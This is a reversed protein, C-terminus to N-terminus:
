NRSLSEPPGRHGDHQGGLSQDLREGPYAGQVLRRQCQGSAAHVRQEALVAGALAGQDLDQGPHVSRVAPLQPQGSGVALQARHLQAVRLVGLPGADTDHVLLPVQDRREADGLVDAQLVQGAAGAQEVTRRQTGLGATAEVQEVEVQVGVQRHRPQRHGLQLQHLDGLRQRRFRCHQQEVFRGRRQGVVLGVPEVADNTPQGLPAVGCHQDAVFQLLDERDGVRHCHQAVPAADGLRFGEGVVAALLDDVQHDAPRVLLHVEGGPGDRRIDFRRQGEIGDGGGGAVVVDAEGDAGTLDDAQVSQDARAAALQGLRQEAEVLDGGPLHPYVATRGPDPVHAIGQVPVPDAVDGLVALLLAEEEVLGHGAVRGHRHPAPQGPEPQDPVPRLPGQDVLVGIPQADSEGRGVLM